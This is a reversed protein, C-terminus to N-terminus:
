CATRAPRLTRVLRDILSPNCCARFCAALRALRAREIMRERDRMLEAVLEPPNNMPDEVHTPM